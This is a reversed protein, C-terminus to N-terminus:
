YGGTGRWADTGAAFDTRLTLTMNAAPGPPQKGNGAGTCRTATATFGVEGGGGAIPAVNYWFLYNSSPAVNTCPNINSIEDALNGVGLMSESFTGASVTLGDGREIWLGAARTRISGMVQRAEAGRSREIMRTYQAFGLTALIGIIIIVVILELLTFGKGSGGEKFELSDGKNQM